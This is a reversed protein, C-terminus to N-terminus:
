CYRYAVSSVCFDTSRGSTFQPVVSPLCHFVLEPLSNIQMKEIISVM